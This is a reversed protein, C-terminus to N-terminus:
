SVDLQRIGIARRNYGGCEIGDDSYAIVYYTDRELSIFHLVDVSTYMSIKLFKAWEKGCLKYLNCTSNVPNIWVKHKTGKNHILYLSPSGNYFRETFLPPLHQYLSFPLWTDNPNICSLM